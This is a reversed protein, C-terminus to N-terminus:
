KLIIEKIVKSFILDLIQVLITFFIAFMFVALTKQLAESKSPWTVLKLEAWSERVFKPVFRVRKNLHRLGKKDPVKIPHYEKAGIQAAKNFPKKITTKVKHFKKPTAKKATEKQAKERVTEPEKRIRPKKAKAVPEENAM